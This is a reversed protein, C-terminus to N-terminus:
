FCCQFLPSLLPRLRNSTPRSWSGCSGRRAQLLANCLRLWDAVLRLALSYMAVGALFFWLGLWADGTDCNGYSDALYFGLVDGGKEEVGENMMFGAWGAMSVLVGYGWAAVILGGFRLNVASTGSALVVALRMLYKRCAARLGCLVVVLVVSGLSLTRQM